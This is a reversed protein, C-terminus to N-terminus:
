VFDGLIKELEKIKAEADKLKLDLKSNEACVGHFKDYRIYRSPATGKLENVLELHREADGNSYFSIEVEIPSTFDM